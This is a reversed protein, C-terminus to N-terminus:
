KKPKEPAYDQGNWNRVTEQGAANKISYTGAKSDVTAVKGNDFKYETKGDKFGVKADKYNEGDWYKTTSKGAKDTETASGMKLDVTLHSGDPYDYHVKNNEKDPKAKSGGCCGGDCGCGGGCRCAGTRKAELEKDKKEQAPEKKEGDGEQKKEGDGEQKKNDKGPKCCGGGCNCGCACGGQKPKGDAPKPAGGGGSPEEKSELLLAHLGKGSDRQIRSQEANIANSYNSSDLATSRMKENANSDTSVRADARNEVETTAAAAQVATDTVPQETEPRYQDM